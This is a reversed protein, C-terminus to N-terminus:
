RHACRRSELLDVSGKLEGKMRSLQALGFLAGANDLRGELAVLFYEEAKSLDNKALYADGLIVLLSAPVSRAARQKEIFSICEDFRGQSFLLEPLKETAEPNEPDLALVEKLQLIAKEPARKILYLYVLNM